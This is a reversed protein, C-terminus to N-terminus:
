IHLLRIEGKFYLLKLSKVYRFFMIHILHTVKRLVVVFLIYNQTNCLQYYWIQPQNCTFDIWNIYVSDETTCGAGEDTIAVKVWTPGTPYWLRAKSSSSGKITFGESNSWSYTYPGVGGTPNAKIFGSSLGWYYTNTVDAGASAYLSSTEMPTFTNTLCPTVSAFLIEFRDQPAYMDNTFTYSGNKSLSTTVNLYVDKVFVEIDNDWESLDASITFSGGNGDNATVTITTTGGRM